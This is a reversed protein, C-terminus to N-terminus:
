VPGAGLLPRETPLGDDMEVLHMAISQRVGSAEGISQSVYGRVRAGYPEVIPSGDYENKEGTEYRFTNEEMFKEIDSRSANPRKAVFERIRKAEKPIFDPIIEVDEWFLMGGACSDWCTSEGRAWRSGFRYVMAWMTKAKWKPVGSALMAEYFVDHTRVWSRYKTEYFHDHIVAAKLYKGTFPSGFIWLARPISAGDTRSGAPVDWKFGKSDRFGFAKVVEKNRGDDLVKLILDAGYYKGPAKSLAFSTGACVSAVFVLLRFSVNIAPTRSSINLM